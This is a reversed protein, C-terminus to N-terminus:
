DAELDYAHKLLRKVEDDIEAASSIGIQRNIRNKSKDQIDILAPPPNRAKRSRWSCM